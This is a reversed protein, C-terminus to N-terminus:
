GHALQTWPELSAQMLAWDCELSICERKCCACSCVCPKLGAHQYMGQIPYDVLAILDHQRPLPLGWRGWIVGLSARLKRSLWKFGWFNFLQSDGLHYVPMIDAYACADNAWPTHLVARSLHSTCCCTLLAQSM